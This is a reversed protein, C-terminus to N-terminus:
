SRSGQLSEVEGRYKPAGTLVGEFDMLVDGVAITGNKMVLERITREHEGSRKKIVSLAQRVEGAAEFYRFLLVTDALYSVDVPTDINTGVFGHQAVTMLTSVGRQSLYAQLEHLQLALFQEGPMGNLFGNLSDIILLKLNQNEVLQRIEHVLQGPSLEAADVQRLLLRGSDFHKRIDLGLGKCRMEVTALTEDFAFLAACGGREVESVAYRIAITSKGCGAPGLLLTSTGSDLGGGLLTDLAAIGSCIQTPQVAILHESVVLRPYVEVGGRKINYDHLGERFASGRLKKVELRRKKVGYERVASELLIVGHAISQLQLDHREATRDDLLLVTCKRGSFYQKLGLIQRRYRLSDRALLRLESLSDFVVRVPELKEVEALVANTTDALEVETPNFVTYQAEPQLQSEDPALEFVKIGDLSWGHSEAIELLEAKSESLTVYLGKQGLRAGEMLFQMAITTKGTGPDGEILYLHNRALGGGLIDDLGFIGTTFREISAARGDARIVAGNACETTTANRPFIPDM